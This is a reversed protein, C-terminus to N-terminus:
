SDNNTINLTISPPRQIEDFVPLLVGNLFRLPWRKDSKMVYFYITGEINQEVTDKPVVSKFDFRADVGPGVRLGQNNVYVFEADDSKVFVFGEISSQVNMSRVSHGGPVVGGFHIKDSDLVFGVYDTVNLTYNVSEVNLVSFYSYTRVGFYFSSALLLLLLLVFLLLNRNFVLKQRVAKKKM